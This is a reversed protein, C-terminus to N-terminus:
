NRIHIKKYLAERLTDETWNKAMLKMRISLFKLFEKVNEKKGSISVNGSSWNPM